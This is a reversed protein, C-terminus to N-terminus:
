TRVLVSVSRQSSDMIEFGLAEVTVDKQRAEYALLRDGYKKFANQLSMSARVNVWVARPFSSGSTNSHLAERSRFSQQTASIVVVLPGGGFTRETTTTVVASLDAEEIASHEAREMVALQSARHVRPTKDTRLRPIESAMVIEPARITM